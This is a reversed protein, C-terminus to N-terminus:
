LHLRLAQDSLQQAIGAQQSERRRQSSISHDITHVSVARRMAPFPQTIWAIHRIPLPNQHSREDRRGLGATPPPRRVHALHQIRQEVNNRATARPPQQGFAKRRYRCHAAIEVGPAISAEEIRDVHHQHHVQAFDLPSFGRGAGTHDVALRDFGRFTAPRTTIVCALLDFAPLPMDQCVGTAEEDENEDMGGVNLVAVAGNIHEFRDTLVEGPQPMDEGIPAIGSVLEPVRQGAHALPGDLDDLSGVGGPSGHGAAGSPRRVCRRMARVIGDDRWPSPFIWRFSWRM